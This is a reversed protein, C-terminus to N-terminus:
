FSYGLSIGVSPLLLVDVTGREKDSFGLIPTFGIRFLLGNKQQYRYGIVGNVFIWDLGNNENILSSLGIGFETRYKAGGFKYFMISPIINWEGVEGEFELFGFGIAKSKNIRKDINISYFHKGLLEFYVSIGPNSYLYKQGNAQIEELRDIYNGRIKISVESQQILREKIEGTNEDLYTIKLFYRNDPLKIYVASQFGKIKQFLKYKEKEEIDIEEGVRESIIIIEGKEEQASIQGFSFLVVYIILTQFFSYKRFM